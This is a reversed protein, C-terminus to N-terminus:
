TLPSLHYSLQPVFKQGIVHQILRYATGIARNAEESTMQKLQHAFANRNKRAENLRVLMLDDIRGHLSLNQTIISATFDRSTLQARRKKNIETHGGNKSDSRDLLQSWMHNLVLESITWALVTASSFQNLHYQHCAIYALSLVNIYAPGFESKFCGMLGVSNELTEPVLILKNKHNEPKPTLPISADDKKVRILTGSHVPDHITYIGHQVSKVSSALCALFSNIYSSRREFVRHYEDFDDLKGELGIIESLSLESGEFDFMLLGDAGRYSVGVSDATTANWTVNGDSSDPFKAGLQVAALEDEFPM